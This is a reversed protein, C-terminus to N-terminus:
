AEKTKKSKPKRKKKPRVEEAPATPIDSQEIMQPAASIKKEYDALVQLNIASCVKKYFMFVEDM